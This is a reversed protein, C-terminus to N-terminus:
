LAYDSRHHYIRVNGSLRRGAPQPQAKGQDSMVGLAQGCKLRGLGSAQTVGEPKQM